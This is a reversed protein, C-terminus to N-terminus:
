DTLREEPGFVIRRQAEYPKGELLEAYPTGFLRQIYSREAADKTSFDGGSKEKGYSWYWGVAKGGRFRQHVGDRM